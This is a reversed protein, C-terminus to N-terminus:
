SKGGTRAFWARRCELFPKEVKPFENEALFTRIPDLTGLVNDVIVAADISSCDAIMLSDATLATHLVRLKGIAVDIEDIPEQSPYPVTARAAAATSDEKMNSQGAQSQSGLSPDTAASAPGNKQASLAM